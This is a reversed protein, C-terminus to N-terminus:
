KSGKVEIHGDKIVFKLRKPNKLMKLIPKPVYCYSTMRAENPVISVTFEKADKPWIPM